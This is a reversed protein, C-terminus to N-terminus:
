LTVPTGATPPPPPAAAPPPPAAWPSPVAPQPPQAQPPQQAPVLAGCDHFANGTSCLNMRERLSGDFSEFAAARSTNATNRYGWRGVLSAISGAGAVGLGAWFLPPLGDGSSDRSFISTLMLTAGLISAGLGTGFLINAVNENRASDEAALGTPSRLGVMNALDRPDEVVTGNALVLRDWRNAVLTPAYFGNGSFMATGLAATPRYSEYFRAREALPATRAPAEPLVVRVMCGQAAIGMALVGAV